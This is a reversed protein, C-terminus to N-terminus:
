LLSFEMSSNVLDVKAYIQAKSSEFHGVLGDNLRLLKAGYVEGFFSDWHNARKFSSLVIYVRNNQTNVFCDGIKFNQKTFSYLKPNSKPNIKM